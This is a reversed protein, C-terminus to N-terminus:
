AKVDAAAQAVRRTAVDLQAELQVIRGRAGAGLNALTQPGQKLDSVLQNRLTTMRANLQQIEQPPIPAAANFRFNGECLRRWELLRRRYVDGIGPVNMSPRVDLASEIGYAQLAAVRGPGIGQIGARAILQRDLYERLQLERKKQELKQMEMARERDLRSYREYATRLESHRKKFESHYL